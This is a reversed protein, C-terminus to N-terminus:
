FIMSVSDFEICNCVYVHIKARKAGIFRQSILNQLPALGGSKTFHYPCLQAEWTHNFYRM